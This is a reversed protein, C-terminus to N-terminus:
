GFVLSYLNRESIDVANSSRCRLLNEILGVNMHVGLTIIQGFILDGGDPLHNIAAMLNLSVQSGLHGHIDLAKHIETTIAPQAVPASKWDPSLASM